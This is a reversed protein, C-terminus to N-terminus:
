LYRLKPVCPSMPKKPNEEGLFEIIQNGDDRETDKLRGDFKEWINYDFKGNKNFHGYAYGRENIPNLGWIYVIDGQKTMYFGRRTIRM